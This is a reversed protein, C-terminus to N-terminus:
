HLIVCQNGFTSGDKHDQFLDWEMMTYSRKYAKKKKKIQKALIRKLIKADLNMLSYQGIIKKKQPIETSPTPIM